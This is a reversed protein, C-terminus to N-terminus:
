YNFKPRSIVTQKEGKYVKHEKVKGTILLNDGEKVDSGDPYLACGTSSSYIIKNGDADEFIYLLTYGRDSYFLQRRDIVIRKKLTVAFTEREGIKGVFVKTVDAEVKKQLYEVKRAASKAISNEVCLIQKESLKGYKEFGNVFSEWLTFPNSKAVESYLFNLVTTIRDSGFTAYFTKNANARIRAKTAREYADPNMIQSM